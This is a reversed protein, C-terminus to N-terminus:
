CLHLSFDRLVLCLVRPRAWLCNCSPVSVKSVLAPPNLQIATRSLDFQNGYFDLFELLIEGLHQEASLEGSQIRPMNQLLSVVLCTVSFGGLGGNVVENLGRMLLFQKVVTVLIPMVPYQAKWAAFTTNAQIGTMNEFSMDVRIGTLRDVFKVLPVKAKAITEVSGNKALGNAVVWKSINYISRGFGIQPISEKTFSDTVVVIDMDADPLYLGAAFSGFSHVYCARTYEQMSRRIRDLLDLRMSQEFDQPKVFDYFDCIEKHLRSHILLAFCFSSFDSFNLVSLRSWYFYGVSSPVSLSGYDPLFNTVQRFAPNATLHLETAWPVSNGRSMWEHRISGDPVSSKFVKTRKPEPPTIEDEDSRKRKGREIKVAVSNGVEPYKVSEPNDGSAVQGNLSSLVARPGSPANSPAISRKQKDEFDFSVFDENQALQRTANNKQDNTVRAKRILKVVDVRKKSTEQTPPLATYLEPNSWKPPQSQTSKPVGLDETDVQVLSQEEGEVDSEQMVEEESDSMEEVNRFRPANDVSEQMGELQDPTGGRHMQLVPRSAATFQGQPRRRYQDGRDSRGPQRQGPYPNTYELHGPFAPLSANAQFSFQNSQGPGFGAFQQQQGFHHMPWLGQTFGPPPGPPLPPLQGFSPGNPNMGFFMEPQFTMFDAYAQQQNFQGPPPGDRNEHRSPRHYDGM